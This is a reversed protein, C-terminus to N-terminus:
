QEHQAEEAKIAAICLAIAPGGIIDQATHAVVSSEPGVEASYDGEIGSLIFDYGEPVLTMAADISGTFHPISAAYHEITGSPSTWYFAGEAPPKAGIRIYILADVERDPGTLAQLRDLITM